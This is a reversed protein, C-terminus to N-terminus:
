QSSACRHSLQLGDNPLKGVAFRSGVKRAGHRSRWRLPQTRDAPDTTGISAGHEEVADDAGLGLLDNLEEELAVRGLRHDALNPLVLRRQRVIEPDLCDFEALPEGGFAAVV